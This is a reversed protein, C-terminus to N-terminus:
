ACRGRMTAMCQQMTKCKDGRTSCKNGSEQQQKLTVTVLHLCAYRLGCLISLCQQRECEFKCSTQGAVMQWSTTCSGNSSGCCRLLRLVLLLVLLLYHQPHLQLLELLRTYLGICCDHRCNACCHCCCCHLIATM